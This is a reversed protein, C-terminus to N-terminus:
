LEVDETPEECVPFYDPQPYKELYQEKETNSLSDYFRHVLNCYEAGLGERWGISDGAYHPFLIWHPLIENMLHPGFRYMGCGYKNVLYDARSKLIDVNKKVLAFDKKSLNWNNENEWSKKRDKVPLHHEVDCFDESDVPLNVCYELVKKSLKIVEDCKITKPNPGFWLM